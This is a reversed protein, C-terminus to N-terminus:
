TARIADVPEIRAAKRSPVLSILAPIAITYITMLIVHGATLVPHLISSVEMNMNGYAASFDMGTKELVLVLGSGVTMGIVASIIGAFLAELFFLSVLEKPKMGMAALIGIERFREYVVMMTTNVIVTAGLALFFIVIGNYMINALGMIAYFEGQNKWFKTALYAYGADSSLLGDITERQIEATEPNVTTVLVEQAGGDMRIFHQMTDFPLIFHSQSMGGSPFKVTGTIEFTMANVGREATTTMFAFKEGVDLNLKDALGYGIVVERSGAIPLRGSVLLSEPDLVSREEAFDIGLAIATYQEGPIDDDPTEDIYIKGGATIRSVSGTIGDIQMLRERLAMEDHVYLHVPNLYDYTDYDGHRIQVSGTYYALINKKMDAKMGSILSLMFLGLVSAVVISFISLASRVKHRGLNKFALTALNM